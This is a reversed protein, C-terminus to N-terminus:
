LIKALFMRANKLLRLGKNTLEYVKIKRRKGSKVWKGRILNTEELKYLVPYIAGPTFKLGTKERVATMIGYGHLPEKVLISLILIEILNRVLPRILEAEM